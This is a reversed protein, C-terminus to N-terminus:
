RLPLRSCSGKKKPSYDWASVEIGPIVRVGAREGAIKAKTVGAFTDHDTIAVAELGARKALGILEDTGLSGDSAKTHCHLDAKM